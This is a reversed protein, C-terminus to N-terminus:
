CLRLWAALRLVAEGRDFLLKLHQLLFETEARLLLGLDPGDQLLQM